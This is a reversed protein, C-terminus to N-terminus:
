EAFGAILYEAKIDEKNSVLYLTKAEKEDNTNIFLEVSETNLHELAQSLTQLAVVIFGSGQTDSYRATSSQRHEIDKVVIQLEDKNIRIECSQNESDVISLCKLSFIMRSEKPLIAGGTKTLPMDKLKPININLDNTAYLVGESSFTVFAQNFADKVKSFQLLSEKSAINQMNAIAFRFESAVKFDITVEPITLQTFVSQTGYYMISNTFEICALAQGRSKSVVQLSQSIENLTQTGITSQAENTFSEIEHSDTDLLGLRIRENAISITMEVYANGNSIFEITVEGQAVKAIKHLIKLDINVASLGQPMNALTLTEVQCYTSLERAHWVLSNEKPTLTIHTDKFVSFAKAVKKIEGSQLKVIFGQM